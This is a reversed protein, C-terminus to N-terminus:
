CASGSSRCPIASCRSSAPSRRDLNGPADRGRHRAGARDAGIIIAATALEITAPFTRAIDRAVPQGTSISQGFNGSLATNCIACFQVPLPQDLGLALRAADYTSQSAHDGVLQLAPDIPSLRTMAFTVLALGLLTLAFSWLWKCSVWVFSLERWGNAPPLQEHRILHTDGAQPV